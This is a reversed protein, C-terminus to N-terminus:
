LFDVFRIIDDIEQQLRKARKALLYCYSDPQEIELVRTVDPLTKQCEAILTTKFDTTTPIKGSDLDRQLLVSRVEISELQTAAWWDTAQGPDVRSFVDLFELCLEWKRQM